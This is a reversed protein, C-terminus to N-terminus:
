RRKLNELNETTYTLPCTKLGVPLNSAPYAPLQFLSSRAASCLLSWPDQLGGVLSVGSGVYLGSGYLTCEHLGGALEPQILWCSLGSTDSTPVLPVLPRRALLSEWLHTCTPPQTHCRSASKLGSPFTFCLGMSEHKYSCNQAMHAAAFTDNEQRHGHAKTPSHM